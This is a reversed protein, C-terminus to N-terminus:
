LRERVCVAIGTGEKWGESGEETAKQVNESVTEREEWELAWLGVFSTPADKMEEEGYPSECKLKKVVGDLFAKWGAIPADFGRSWFERYFVGKVAGDDCMVFSWPRPFWNLFFIDVLQVYM